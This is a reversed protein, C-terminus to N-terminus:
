APMTGLQRQEIVLKVADQRDKHGVIQAMVTALNEADCREVFLWMRRDPEPTLAYSGGISVFTQLWLRPDFPAASAAKTVISSAM